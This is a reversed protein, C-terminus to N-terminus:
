RVPPYYRALRDPHIGGAALATLAWNRLTQRVLGAHRWRRASVHIRRPVVVVRGLRRLKQSFFLDEMLGLRPFGGLRAFDHRRVFLGQDGYVIGTLRVRATACGDIARYWWGEADVQMTFCGAAIGPLTLAREAEPLAGDELFSDAHLFLLADGSAHEAGLNMQVARGPSSHLLWDADGTLNCTGDRSGGDVVIIEHPRHHRLRRLTEGIADQENLTPIIVSVTVAIRESAGLATPNRGLM